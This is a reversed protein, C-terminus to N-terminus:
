DGKSKAHKDASQPKTPFTAHLYIGVSVCALALLHQTTLAATGTVAQTICTILLGAILAFGKLTTDTYKAVLGTLLGGLAQSLIPLVAFLQTPALSQTDRWAATVADMDDSWWIHVLLMVLSYVALELNYVFSERSKNQLAWQSLASSLGSILSAALIPVVGAMFSTRSAAHKDDDKAHPLNL